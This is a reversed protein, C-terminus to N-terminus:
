RRKGVTMGTWGRHRANVHGGLVGPLQHNRASDPDLLWSIKDEEAIAPLIYIPFLQTDRDHYRVTVGVIVRHGSCLHATDIPCQPLSADVMIVAQGDVTFSNKEGM